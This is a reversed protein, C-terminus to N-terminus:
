ERRTAGAEPDFNDVLWVDSVTRGKSCLWVLGQPREYPVCLADGVEPATVVVGTGGSRPIRRIARDEGRAYIFRGDASWGLPQWWGEVVRVPSANALDVLWIGREWRNWYIAIQAGDPSYEPWFTWGASDRSILPREVGTQPDRLRFNRNGPVQYAILSGPAWALHEGVRAAEVLTPAGGFANIIALRTGDPTGAGYALRRGAPDWAPCVRVSGDFTLQEATGGRTPVRYLDVGRDSAQTFALMTGDPSLAPCQNDATGKTLEVPEAGEATAPVFWFNSWGSTRAYALRRGDASLSFSSGGELRLIRRPTGILDGQRPGVALRYLDGAKAFYLTRGDAVWRPSALADGSDALALIPTGGRLDIIWLHASAGDAATTILALLDRHSAWDAGGTWADPGPITLSDFRGSGVETTLIGHRAPQSWGALRKGDPSWAVFASPLRARRPTGGLRSYIYTESLAGDTGTVALWAGDPSWRLDFPRVSDAIVLSTGGALDNVKLAYRPMQGVAYALWQGDPSLEALAVEGDFTLQHYEPQPPAAGPGGDRLLLVLATVALGGVSAIALLRTARSARPLMRATRPPLAEPNPTTMEELLALVEEARQWRDAPRKELCRMVVQALAPPVTPRVEVVPTPPDTVHAALVEQASDGQFPPVGALLEYAMVGLAYIDSRHDIAPDAVAQEPSMYAPTGVALGATHSAFGALERSVAKAVGFDAILAHRGSLLVNDPKIDRHVVGLRHAYALADAVDRLIAVVERVALEGERMLKHRLTEGEVYPMVYYLLGDSEGSDLLMLIHPHHLKAAIGIERLFRNSGVVAALEPRLVKVAVKRDHRLDEALYVTATGGDGLVREIRYRHALALQLREAQQAEAPPLGAPEVANVPIVAGCHLCFKAEPSVPTHCSPCSRHQAVM